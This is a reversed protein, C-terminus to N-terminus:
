PFPHVSGANKHTTIQYSCTNLLSTFDSGIRKVSFFSFSLSTNTGSLIAEVWSWALLVLPLLVLM